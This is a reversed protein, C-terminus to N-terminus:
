TATCWASLTRRRSRQESRSRAITVARPPAIAGARLEDALSRGELYEMAIFCGGDPTEGYDFITVVNPHALKAM